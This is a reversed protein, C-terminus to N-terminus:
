TLQFDFERRLFLVQNQTPTELLLLSGEIISV